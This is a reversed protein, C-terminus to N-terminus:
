TQDVCKHVNKETRKLRYLKLRYLDDTSLEERSLEEIYLKGRKM